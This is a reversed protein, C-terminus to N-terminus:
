QSAPHQPRVQVLVRLTPEVWNEGVPNWALQFPGLQGPGLQWYFRSADRDLTSGPPLPRADMGVMLAGQWVVGEGPLQMEIREMESAEIVYARAEPDFQAAQLPSSLDYGKRFAVGSAPPAEQRSLRSRRTLGPGTEEPARQPVAVETNFITIFRSGIGDTRGLSDTVLWGINHLGNSYQTTDLYYYGVGTNSNLYGPFGAAIDARYLGYAPHAFLVGDIGVWITSGDTPISAPQPTLAWGFNVYASGSITSGQAPTDISGFPKTAAANNVSISKTGLLTQRGEVDVAYAHLRYVGNGQSTYGPTPPLGTTLMMYGWGARYAMPKDSYLAEVDTRSNPVFVADGIYILGNPHVPESGIRDRWLTVKQVQVDDLAWGTVAINGALGSANNAPTDFVGFPAATSGTNMTNMFVRVSQPSNAAGASTVTVTGDMFSPSPFTGQVRVTFRGPGSGSSPTVTLWSRNTTVNWNVTGPGNVSLTVEQPETVIAGNSTAGFYLTSRGVSITPLNQAAHDVVIPWPAYARNVVTGAISFVGYIYYTGNAAGAVNWVYSGTAPDLGSVIQTGNFGVEDSDWYLALSVGTSGRPSYSWRVTYSSAAKELAALKISKIWFTRADSFEHPDVRFNDVLGNWGTTSPSDAPDLALTKMDMSLKEIVNAGSRHHLIIDDSVNEVSEGKNKWVVRCISGQNIDRNGAVGMELTLIRYRSTDISTNYGRTFFWLPYVYPDGHGAAPSAISTGQLVRVGGLSNGQEDEAAVSAIQLGNVNESKDIDTLSDMDWANLLQTVAFNDAGGEPSPSTFTLLPVDAIQWRGPAYSYPGSSGAPRVAVYYVGEPLGGAYFSYSNGTVNRAIMGLLGNGSSNDSDLLIDVAGSGTWQITRYKTPTDEVLKAWDLSITIGGAAIPDIRLSDVNAATWATGAAVGLDQLNVSYIWWDPWTFFSNSTNIGGPPTASPYITNNSWLIQAMGPKSTSIGSGTLSMRMMLRKYRTSDIPFRKGTKGLNAAFPNGTDLLWFNPDANSSVGSFIGDTLTIGSLNARPDDISYTYSGLDTRQNMDWPDQFARAAYDDAAQIVEVSAPQTATIQANLAAQTATLLVLATLRM